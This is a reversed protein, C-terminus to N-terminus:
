GWGSWKGSRGGIGDQDLAGCELKSSQLLRKVQREKEM